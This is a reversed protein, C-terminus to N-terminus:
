SIARLEQKISKRLQPVLMPLEQRLKERFVNYHDEEVLGFLAEAYLDDLRDILKSSEEGVFALRVELNCDYHKVMLEKFCNIGILRQRPDLFATLEKLLVMFDNLAQVRDGRGLRFQEMRLADGAKRAQILYNGAFTVLAGAVASVIATFGPQRFLAVLVSSEAM